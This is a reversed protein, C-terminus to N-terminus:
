IFINKKNLSSKWFYKFEHSPIDTAICGFLGDSLKNAMFCYYDGPKEVLTQENELHQARKGM